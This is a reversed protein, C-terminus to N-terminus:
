GFIDEKNNWKKIRWDKRWGSSQLSIFFHKLNECKEVKGDYIVQM